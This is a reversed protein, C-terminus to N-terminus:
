ELPFRAIKTYRAGAPSLKSEYLCFEHAQMTGFDPQPAAQLHRHLAAFMAGRSAAKQHPNGSAHSGGRALTLHPKYGKSEAEFGLEAAAKDVAAALAPLRDDAEIRVWFVRATPAAPFFGTGCFRIQPGAQTIHQLAAAIESQKGTEGIFKLTVHFTEPRVWRAQPAIARVSEAFAAIRQRIAEDIDIGVFLRM